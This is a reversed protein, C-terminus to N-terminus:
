QNFVGKSLSIGVLETRQFVMDNSMNKEFFEDQGWDRADYVILPSLAVGIRSYISNFSMFGMARFFLRSYGGIM